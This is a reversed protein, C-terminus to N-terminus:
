AGAYRTHRHRAQRHGGGHVFRLGMERGGDADYSIHVHAVRGYDTSYGGPWGHLHAYICSPHGAVDVAKGSAHLSIRRTGAIYSHRVGSVVRSGCSAAIEAVKAALPAVVGLSQPGAARPVYHKQAAGFGLKRAIMEGRPSAVVGACPFVVNCDPHALYVHGSAVRPHRSRADASSTFVVVCALALAALVASRVM